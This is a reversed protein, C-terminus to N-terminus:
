YCHHHGHGSHHSDCYGRHYHEEAQTCGAVGCHHYAHGDNDNHPYCFIGDHMHVATETCDAINCVSHYHEETQTCGEIDCSFVDKTDTVGTGLAMIISFLYIWSKM